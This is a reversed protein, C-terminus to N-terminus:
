PLISCSALSTGFTHSPKRRTNRAFSQGIFQQVHMRSFDCLKHNGLAPVLHKSALSRYLKRTSFKLTPLIEPEFYTSWFDNFTIGSQPQRSGTNIKRLCADAARQAECRTRLAGLVVSRHIRELTGESNFIDERYRLVWNKGKKVLCGKQYRRRTLSIEKRENVRGGKRRDPRLTDRDESM